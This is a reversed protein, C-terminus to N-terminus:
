GFNERLMRKLFVYMVMGTFTFVFWNLDLFERRWLTRERLPNLMFHFLQKPQFTKCRYWINGVSYQIYGAFVVTSLLTGQIVDSGLQNM